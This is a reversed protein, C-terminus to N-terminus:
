ILSYKITLINESINFTKEDNLQSNNCNLTITKLSKILTFKRIFYSM